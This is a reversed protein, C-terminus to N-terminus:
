GRKLQNNYKGGVGSAMATVVTTKTGKGSGDSSGDGSIGVNCKSDGCSGSDGGGDIGSGNYSNDCNNGM